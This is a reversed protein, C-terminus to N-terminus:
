KNNGRRIILTEPLETSYPLDNWPRIGDGIKFKNTDSERVLEDKLLSLNVQQLVAKTDRKFRIKIHSM